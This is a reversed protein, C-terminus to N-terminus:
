KRRRRRLALSGCFLGVISLSSPEPVAVVTSFQLDHSRAVISGGSGGSNNFLVTATPAFDVGETDFQFGGGPTSLNVTNGNIDVNRTHAASSGMGANAGTFGDFVILDGSDTTTGSVNIVSFTVGDTTGAGLNGFGTDVGQGWGRQNTGGSARVTFNVTDNASGDGDLNLNAYSIVWDIPDAVANNTPGSILTANSHGFVGTGRLDLAMISVTAAHIPLTCVLAVFVGSIRTLNM